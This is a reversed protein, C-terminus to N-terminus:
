QTGTEVTHTNLLNPLQLEFSLISLNPNLDSEWQTLNSQAM